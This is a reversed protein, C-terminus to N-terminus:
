RDSAEVGRSGRECRARLAAQAVTCDIVGLSLADELADGFGARM